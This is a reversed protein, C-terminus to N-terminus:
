ILRMKKRWLMGPKETKYHSNFMAVSTPKLQSTCFETDNFWEPDILDAKFGTTLDAPTNTILAQSIKEALIDHNTLCLHNYRCDYGNFYSVNRDAVMKALKDSQRYENYQAATLYGNCIALDPWEAMHELIQDFGPVILPRRLGRLRTTYAILALRSTGQLLHLHPRDIHKVFGEVAALREKPLHKEADLININSLSPLDEFFWYRDASTLILVVYDDPAIDDSVKLYANLMWDQSSGVLSSNIMEINSGLHQSLRHSVQCPWTRKNVDNPDLASWSDGFIWLRPKDSPQITQM